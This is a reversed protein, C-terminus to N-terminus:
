LINMLINNCSIKRDESLERGQSKNLQQNNVHYLESISPEKYHM